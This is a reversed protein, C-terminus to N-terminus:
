LVFRSFIFFSPTIKTKEASNQRRGKDTCLPVDSKAIDWVRRYLPFGAIVNFVPMNKRGRKKNEACRAPEREVLRCKGGFLLSFAFVTVLFIFILRFYFLTGFHYSKNTKLRLVAPKRRDASLLFLPM